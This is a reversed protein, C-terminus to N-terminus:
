NKFSSPFPDACGCDAISRKRGSSSTNPQFAFNNSEIVIQNKSAMQSGKLKKLVAKCSTSIKVSIESDAELKTWYGDDNWKLFRGGRKETIESALWRYIDRKSSTFNYEETRSLILEDFLINGPHCMLRKGPKFVVDNSGPCEVISKAWGARAAVTGDYNLAEAEIMLRNKMWPKHHNTKINGTGTVPIFNVPIGYSELKYRLEIDEGIHLKMRAKTQSGIGGFLVAFSRILRFVRNDPMCYHYGAYRIPVVEHRMSVLHRARADPFQRKKWDKGSGGPWVILIVGKRQTEINESAVLAM